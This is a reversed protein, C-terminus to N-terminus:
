ENAAAELEAIADLIAQKENEPLERRLKRTMSPESIGIHEAILWLPLHAAKAAKRIDHNARDM